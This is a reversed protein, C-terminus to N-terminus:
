EPEKLLYLVQLVLVVHQGALYPGAVLQRPM